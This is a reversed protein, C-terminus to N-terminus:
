LIAGNKLLERRVHAGDIEHPMSKRTLSLAAARGAAEGMLSATQSVRTSAAAMQDASHCRGAVLLNEVNKPILTRYPIDYVGVTKLNNFGGSVNPDHYDIPWGGLAVGDDFKQNAIVDNLTLTYEGDIRRSERPGLHPGSYLLYANKFEPLNEILIKAYHFVDERSKVEAMTTEEPNVCNYKVRTMNFNIVGKHLRGVSPGHFSRMEGREEAAAFCNIARVKLKAYDEYEVGGMVFMLTGAQLTDTLLEYPAGSWAALDADGTCDIVIKATVESIGDKNALIVNSINQGNMILDCVQTHYLFKVGAEVLIQDAQHKYLEADIIMSIANPHTKMEEVSMPQYLRTKSVDIKSLPTHSNLHKPDRVLATRRLMEWTIGGTIVDGTDMNFVGCVGIVNARTINGGAYAASEVGMVSFGNRAAAVAAAIGTPGLGCVLVDTKYNRKVKTTFVEV